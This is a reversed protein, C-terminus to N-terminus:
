SPPFSRSGKEVAKSYIQYALQSSGSGIQFFIFYMAVNTSVAQVALYGNLQVGQYTGDMRATTAKEAFNIPTLDFSLTIGESTITLNKCSALNDKSKKLSAEFSSVPEALLQQSIFPGSEGATFDASASVQGPLPSTQNIDNAL